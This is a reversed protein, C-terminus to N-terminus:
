QSDRQIYFADVERLAANLTADGIMGDDHYERVVKAYLEANRTCPQRRFMAQAIDLTPLKM